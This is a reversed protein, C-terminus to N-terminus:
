QFEKALRAARFKSLRPGGEAEELPVVAAESAKLFGGQKQILRNRTRHYDVATAQLLLRADLDSPDPPATTANTDREVVSAALPQGAPGTPVIPANYISQDLFRTPAENPGKPLGTPLTSPGVSRKETPQSAVTSAAGSASTVAAAGGDRAMKFRSLKKARAPEAPAAAAAVGSVISPTPTARSPREVVDSLPEVLPPASKGGKATARLPPSQPPATDAALPAIDLSQAFSVKKPTGEATKSAAAGIAEKKKVLSPRTTPPVDVVADTTSAVRIRGLGERVRGTAEDSDSDNEGNTKDNNKAAESLPTVGLKTELERMRARYSEDIVSYKSRGFADEEDDDDDEAYIEDNDSDDDDYGEDDDDEWPGEDIDLQAVIPGIESMSYELMERRLAAEDETDDAPVVASSASASTEQDKAARLIRELRQAAYPQTEVHASSSTSPSVDHDGPRTDDAFSVGKRQKLRAPSTPPTPQQQPSLQQQQQQQQQQQPPIQPRPLSQQLPGQTASSGETPAAGGSSEGGGPEDEELKDIGAQKLVEKVRAHSQSPTQLRVSVVNDDDDLEEVIDTIPEGDDDIDDDGGDLTADDVTAAGPQLVVQAAALRNVAADVQGQLTAVNKQVYDLRREVAGAIQDASRTIPQGDRAGFLECVTKHDVLQGSFDRRIRALAAHPSAAASSADRVKHPKQAQRVDDRLAEYEAALLRWYDRAQTLQRVTTALRETHRELDTLSDRATSPEM